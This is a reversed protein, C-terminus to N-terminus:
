RQIYIQFNNKFFQAICYMTFVFMGQSKQPTVPLTMKFDIVFISINVTNRM